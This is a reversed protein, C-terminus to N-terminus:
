VEEESNESDFDVKAKFDSFVLDDRVLEYKRLWEYFRVCEDSLKVTYVSEDYGDTILYLKKENTKVMKVGREQPAEM